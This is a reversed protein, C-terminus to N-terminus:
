GTALASICSALADTLQRRQGSSLGSLMLQELQNVGASAAEAVARGAATPRTQLVRGHHPHPSRAVLGRGELDRLLQIMTQPTVFSRRALDANSLGPEATVAALAAYQAVTLDHASLTASMADHLSAQARKLLYGAQSEVTM